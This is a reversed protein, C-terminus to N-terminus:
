SVRGFRGCGFLSSLFIHVDVYVRDSRGEGYLDGYGVGDGIGVRHEVTLRPRLLRLLYSRKVVLVRDRKVVKSKEEQKSRVVMWLWVVMLEGVHM